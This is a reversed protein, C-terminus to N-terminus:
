YLYQYFRFFNKELKNFSVNIPKVSRIHINNIRSKERNLTKKKDFLDAIDNNNM